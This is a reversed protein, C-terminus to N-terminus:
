VDEGHVASGEGEGEWRWVCETLRILCQFGLTKAVCCVGGGGEMGWRNIQDSM